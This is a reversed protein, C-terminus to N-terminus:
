YKKSFAANFIWCFRNLATTPIVIIDRQSFICVGNGIEKSVYSKRPFTRKNSKLRDFSKHRNKKIKFLWNEEFLSSRPSIWLSISFTLLTTNHYHIYYLKHVYPININRYVYQIHIYKSPNELWVIIRKLNFGNKIRIQKQKLIERWILICKLNFNPM